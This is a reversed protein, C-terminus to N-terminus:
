LVEAVAATGIIRAIEQDFEACNRIISRYLEGQKKWTSEHAKKEAVQLADLQQAGRNVASLFQGFRESTM